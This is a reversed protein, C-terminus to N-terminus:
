EPRLAEIVAATDAWDGGADIVKTLMEVTAPGLRVPIGGRQALEVALRVDKRALAPSFWGPHDDALVANIRQRTTPSTVPSEEFVQRLLDDGIGYRRATAAAEAFAAVGIMLQMNSLLKLVAGSGTPGCHVYGSGLDHWLDHLRLVTDAHGGILFRGSGAAIAAPAGLVPADLVADAPGAEALERATDPSVTSMNALVAGPALSALAGDMGVCVDLAAADDAVVVLVVEARAV